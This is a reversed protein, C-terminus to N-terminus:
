EGMMVAMAWQSSPVDKRLVDSAPTNEFTESSIERFIGISALARLLRFLTDPHTNTAAALSAATQPGSALRDALELKAAVYVAQSQWYGILTQMIHAPPSSEM